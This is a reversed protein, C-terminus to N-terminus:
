PARVEKLVHTYIPSIYRNYQVHENSPIPIVPFNSEQNIEKNPNKLKQYIYFTVLNDDEKWEFLAKRM